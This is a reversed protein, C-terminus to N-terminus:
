PAIFMDCDHFLVIDGEANLAGMNRAASRGMNESATLLRTAVDGGVKELVDGVPLGSGDDVVVIEWLAPDLTQSQLSRLTFDLCQLVNYFPLVVSLKTVSM